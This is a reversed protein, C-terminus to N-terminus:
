DGRWVEDPNRVSANILDSVFALAGEYSGWGNSPEMKLLAGRNDEMYERIRRLPRLADKGTMGYHARIGKDPAAAYWMLSVNYTYNFDEDGVQM